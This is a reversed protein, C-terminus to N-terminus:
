GVVEVCIPALDCRNFGVTISGDHVTVRVEPLGVPFSVDIVRYACCLDPVWLTDDPELESALVHLYVERRSRLGRRLDTRWRDYIRQVFRMVGSARACRQRCPPGPASRSEASPQM